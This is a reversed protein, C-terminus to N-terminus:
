LLLLLLLLLLWCGVPLLRCPVSSLRCVVHPSLRSAVHSLPKVLIRWAGEGFNQCLNGFRNVPHRFETMLPALIAMKRNKKQDCITFILSLHVNIKNKKPKNNISITKRRQVLKDTDKGRSSQNTQHIRCRRQLINPHKNFNPQNLNQPNPLTFIQKAQHLNTQKRPSNNEKWCSKTNM